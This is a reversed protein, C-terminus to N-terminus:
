ALLPLQEAQRRHHRRAASPPLSTRSKLIGTDGCPVKFCAQLAQSPLLVKGGRRMGKEMGWTRGLYAGRHKGPISM